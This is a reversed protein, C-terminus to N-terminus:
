KYGGDSELAEILIFKVSNPLRGKTMLETALEGKIERVEQKTVCRDLERHLAKATDTMEEILRYRKTGRKFGLDDLGGLLGEILKLTLVKQIKVELTNDM